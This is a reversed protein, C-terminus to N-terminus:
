SSHFHVTRIMSINRVMKPFYFPALAQEWIKLPVREGLKKMKSERNTTRVKPQLLKSGEAALLDAKSTSRVDKTSLLIAMIRESESKM